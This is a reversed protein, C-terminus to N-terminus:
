AARCRLLRSVDAPQARHWDTLINAFKDLGFVITLVTFGTRLMLFAGYAPETWAKNLLSDGQSTASVKAADVTM